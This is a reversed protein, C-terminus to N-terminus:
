VPSPDEFLTLTDSLLSVVFAALPQESFLLRDALVQDLPLIYQCAKEYRGGDGIWM